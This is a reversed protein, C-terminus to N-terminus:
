RGNQKSTVSASASPSFSTASHTHSGLSAPVWSRPFCRSARPPMQYVACLPMQCLTQSSVTGSSCTTASTISGRGSSPFSM